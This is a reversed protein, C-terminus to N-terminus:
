FSKHIVHLLPSVLALMFSMFDRMSWHKMRSVRVDRYNFCTEVRSMWRSAPSVDSMLTYHNCIVSIFSMVSSPTFSDEASSFISLISQRSISQNFYHLTSSSSPHLCNRTLSKVSPVRETTSMVIVPDLTTATFWGRRRRMIRWRIEVEALRPITTM